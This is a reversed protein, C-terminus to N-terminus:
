IQCRPHRFETVNHAAKECKSIDALMVTSRKLTHRCHKTICARSYSIKKLNSHGDTHGRAALPVLPHKLGEGHGCYLNICGNLLHQRREQRVHLGRLVQLSELGHHYAGAALAHLAHVHTATTASQLTTSVPDDNDESSEAGHM